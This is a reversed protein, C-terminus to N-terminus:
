GASITRSIRHINRRNINILFLGITGRKSCLTFTKMQEQVRLVAEMVNKGEFLIPKGSFNRLATHLVARNETENILEGEFM